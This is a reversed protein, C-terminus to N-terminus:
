HDYAVARGAAVRFDTSRQATRGTPVDTVKVWLAYAGAPLTDPVRFGHVVLHAVPQEFRQPFVSGLLQSALLAAGQRIRM